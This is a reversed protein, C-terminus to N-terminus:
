FLFLPSPSDFEPGFGPKQLGSKCSDSYQAFFTGVWVLGVPNRVSVAVVSDPFYKRSIVFM